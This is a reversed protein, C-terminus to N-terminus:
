IALPETFPRGLRPDAVSVLGGHYNQCLENLTMDTKDIGHIGRASEPDPLDEPEPIYVTLYGDSCHYIHVITTLDSHLPLKDRGFRDWAAEMAAHYKATFEGLPIHMPRSRTELQTASM